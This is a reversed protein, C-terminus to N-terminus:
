RNNQLAGQSQKKLHRAFHRLKVDYSRVTEHRLFTVRRMHFNADCKTYCVKLRSFQQQM